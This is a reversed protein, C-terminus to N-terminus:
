SYFYTHYRKNEFKGQFEDLNERLKECSVPHLRIFQNLKIIPFGTSLFCIFNFCFLYLRNRIHKCESVHNILIDTIMKIHM